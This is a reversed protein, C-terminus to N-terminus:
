YMMAISAALVAASAYLSTAGTEEGPCFYEFTNGYEDKLSRNSGNCDECTYRPYEQADYWMICLKDEDECVAPESKCGGGYTYGTSFGEDDDDDQAAAVAFLAVLNTLKM